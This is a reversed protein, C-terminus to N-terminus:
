VCRLADVTLRPRKRPPPEFVDTLNLVAEPDFGPYLARIEDYEDVEDDDEDDDELGSDDEDSGFLAGSRDSRAAPTDAGDFDDDEGRM